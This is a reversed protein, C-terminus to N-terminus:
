ELWNKKGLFAFSGADDDDFDDEPDGDEDTHLSLSLSADEDITSPEATLSQDEAFPSEVQAEGTITNFWYVVGAEKVQEWANRQNGSLDEKVDTEIDDEDYEDNVPSSLMGAFQNFKNDQKMSMLNSQKKDEKKKEAGLKFGLREVKKSSSTPTDSVHLRRAQKRTLFMEPPKLIEEKVPKPKSGARKVLSKSPAALYQRRSGYMLGKTYDARTGFVDGFM